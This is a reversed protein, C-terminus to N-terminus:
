SRSAIFSLMAGPQIRTDTTVPGMIKQFRCKRRGKSKTMPRISTTFSCYPSTFKQSM